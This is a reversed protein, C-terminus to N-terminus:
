FIFKDEQSYPFLQTKTKPTNKIRQWYILSNGKLCMIEHKEQCLYGAHVQIKSWFLTVASVTQHMFKKNEQKQVDAYLVYLFKIQRM